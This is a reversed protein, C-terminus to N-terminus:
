CKPPALHYDTKNLLWLGLLGRMRDSIVLINIKEGNRVASRWIWQIMESLAYLEQDITIGNQSFFQVIGVHVYTNLAYVLNKRDSYDNTARCNCEVFGNTYGKGKLVSRYDKFTTWMVDNSKANVVNRVWNYIASQLDSKTRKDARKFWTSSLATNKKQIINTRHINILDRYVSTDQRYYDCLSFAGNENKIGKKQHQIKNLKLYYSMISADFMYTLIYIREFAKFIESPYNWMLIKDNVYFLSHNLALNRVESYKFNENRFEADTWHIYNKEDITISGKKLLYNIDAKRVGNYPEVARLTEDLILTYKGERILEATDREMDSFLKHTSAIDEHLRFYDKLDDMKFHNKGRIQPTKMDKETVASQIREIEKKYPTIYLINEDVVRNMYDIAWSTKGSGMVADVVTIKNNENEDLNMKVGQKRETKGTSDKDM